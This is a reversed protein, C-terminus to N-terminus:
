EAVTRSGQGSASVTPPTASVVSPAPAGALTGSGETAALAGPAAPIDASTGAASAAPAGGRTVAVVDVAMVATIVLPGAVGAWIAAHLASLPLLFVVGMVALGLTWGILVMRHRNLAVQASQLVFSTMLFATSAAMGALFARSLAAPASLYTLLLWPGIVFSAIIGLVGAALCGVVLFRVKRRVDEFDGRAASQALLPLLPAQLPFLCLLALRSLGMAAGVSTALAPDGESALWPIIVLPVANMVLQSVLTALTLLTLKARASDGEEPPLEAARDKSGSWSRRLSPALLGSAAAFLPGLAFVLAFAWVSGAGLVMLLLAPVMRAVGEVVLTETYWLFDQSGALIGRVLFSAWTAGLGVLLEGFMYWHGHFYRSVLVPSLAGLVAVSVAALGVAQRLQHRIALGVPADVARARAVTRTMEQELGALVGTGITVVLFYFATLTALGHGGDEAKVARDATAFFLSGAVTTVGLGFALLPGPTNLRRLASPLPV